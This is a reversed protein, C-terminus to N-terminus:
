RENPPRELCRRRSRKLTEVWAKADRRIVLVFCFPRAKVLGLVGVGIMDGGEDMSAVILM